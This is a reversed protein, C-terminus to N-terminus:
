GGRQIRALKAAARVAKDGTLSSIQRRLSAVEASNDGSARYSATGPRTVPPLEKTAVAKPAKQIARYRLADTALANFAPHSLMLNTKSEHLLQERTIGYETLYSVLDEAAQAREPLTMPGLVKDSAQAYQQKLTEFQYQRQSQEHHAVLQQRENLAAVNQFMRGLQQGRAPDSQAIINVAEAWRDMPVQALEPALAVLSAQAFQQANNLGSSYAQVARDTEAANTELFQRVQPKKLAEKTEAELGPIDAYPDPDTTQEVSPRADAKAEIADAKAAAAVDEASLGLDEVVAPNAKIIDARMKDIESAFDSSVSRAREVDQAGHYAKLDDAARELTVTENDPSKEGTANRQYELPVIPDEPVRSAALRQAEARIDSEPEPREEPEPMKRYGLDAALTDGGLPLDSSAFQGTESDRNESM